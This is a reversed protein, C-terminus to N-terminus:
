NLFTPMWGNWKIDKVIKDPKTAEYIIKSIINFHKHTKYCCLFKAAQNVPSGVMYPDGGLM